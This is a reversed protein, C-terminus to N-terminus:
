EGLLCASIGIRIRSGADPSTNKLAGGGTASFGTWTVNSWFGDWSREEPLPIGYTTTFWPEKIERKSVITTSGCATLAAVSFMSLGARRTGYLSRARGISLFVM